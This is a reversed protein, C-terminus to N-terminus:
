CIYSSRTVAVTLEQNALELDNSALYALASAHNKHQMSVYSHKVYEHQMSVYSHKVYEHQMSVYNHKVYEHQMSVYNHKVYEHQM